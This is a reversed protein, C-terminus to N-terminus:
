EEFLWFHWDCFNGGCIIAMFNKSKEIGKGYFRGFNKYIIKWRVTEPRGKKGGM